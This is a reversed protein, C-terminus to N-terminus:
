GAYIISGLIALHGPSPMPTSEFAVLEFHDVGVADAIAAEVWSKYITGGPFAKEFLMARLSEEISQRTTANDVVLQQVRMSIPYPIPALVFTDKVAVPRVTDLYDSVREVDEALPFGQNNDARLFDCMFRVTCTGMGMELPYSWARTVGPVAETWSIWDQADGGMPPQRIRQLVRARLEDDTEDDTGGTLVIVEANRDVGPLPPNFNINQGNEMNGTSGPDLARINVPTATTGVIVQELTEYNTQEGTDPVNALTAHAPIVVGPQGTINIIGIALTALKRGKSGDSNVLWIEGHRDLFETEATTPLLQLRLWDLYQLCLHCLAGMADSMVRLLSNPVNADSGPLTARLSDRVLV